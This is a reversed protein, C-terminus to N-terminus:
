CTPSIHRNQIQITDNESVRNWNLLIYEQDREQTDRSERGDCFRYKIPDRCARACSGLVNGTKCAVCIRKSKRSLADGLLVNFNALFYEAAEAEELM